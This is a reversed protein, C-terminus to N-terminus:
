DEPFTVTELIEDAAAQFSEVDEPPSEVFIAVIHDGVQLAIVQVVHDDDVWYDNRASRVIPIGTRDENLPHDVPVPCEGPSPVRVNSVTISYGTTSGVTKPVPNSSELNTNAQLIEILELPADFPRFNEEVMCLGDVAVLADYIFIGMAPDSPTTLALTDADEVGSALNEDQDPGGVWPSPLRFQVTPQFVTSVYEGAELYGVHFPTPGGSGSPALTEAAGSGGPTPSDSVAAGGLDLMGTLAAAAGIGLLALVGAVGALAWRRRRNAVRAGGGARQAGMPEARFLVIPEDIGKLRKKGLPVFQLRGSTRTLGRVTETVMVEGAGAIACVRAAINVASGVYGDAAAVSEGAHVGVGVRIAHDPDSAAQEAAAAVIALGCLVASSASPFVVYFSDGETKIEAGDHKAITDRM